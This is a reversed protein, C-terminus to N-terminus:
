LNVHMFITQYPLYIFIHNHVPPSTGGQVSDPPSVALLEVTGGHVPLNQNNSGQHYVQQRAMLKSALLLHGGSCHGQATFQTSLLEHWAMKETKALMVIHRDNCKGALNIKWDYLVSAYHAHQKAFHTTLHLQGHYAYFKFDPNLSKPAILTYEEVVTRRWSATPSGRHM